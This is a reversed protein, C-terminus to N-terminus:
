VKAKCDHCVCRVGNAKAMQGIRWAENAKAFSIRHEVYTRAFTATDNHYGAVKLVVLADKRKM